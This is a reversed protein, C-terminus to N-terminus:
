AQNFVAILVYHFLIGIFVGCHCRGLSIQDRSLYGLVQCLTHQKRLLDGFCMFFAHEM